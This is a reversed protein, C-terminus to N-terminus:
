ENCWDYVELVTMRLNYDKPKKGYIREREVKEKGCVPCMTVHKKYWCKRIIKKKM